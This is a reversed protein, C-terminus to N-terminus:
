RAMLVPVTAGKLMDRTTGGLIMERLRTHAYAGMVLLDASADRVHTNLVEAVSHGGHPLVAVTAKVGHRVLYRAVAGGPDDGEAGWRGPDVVAVTATATGLLPRAARVAAMAEDGGDWGIVVRAPPWVAMGGPPVILVPVHGGFLAAELVDEAALPRGEGLPRPLVVLDAFRARPAVVGAIGLVQAGADEVAWRIDEAQLRARVDAAVAASRSAAQEMMALTATPDVEAMGVSFRTADLGLCLVDLHADHHRALTVAADLAPGVEARDAFITLLSRYTMAHDKGTGMSDQHGACPAQANVLILGDGPRKIQILSPVGRGASLCGMM